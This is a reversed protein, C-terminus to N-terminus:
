RSNLTSFVNLIKTLIIKGPIDDHKLISNRMVSFLINNTLIEEELFKEKMDYM